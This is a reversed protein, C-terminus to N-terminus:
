SSLEYRAWTPDSELETRHALPNEDSAEKSGAVSLFTVKDGAVIRPTANNSRERPKRRFATITGQWKRSFQSWAGSTVRYDTGQGSPPAGMFSWRLRLSDALIARSTLRRKSVQSLVCSLNGM